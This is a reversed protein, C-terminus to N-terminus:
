SIFRRDRGRGNKQLSVFTQLSSTPNFHTDQSCQPGSFLRTLVFNSLFLASSAKYKAALFIRDTSYITWFPLHLICRPSPASKKSFFNDSFYIEQFNICNIPSKDAINDICNNTNEITSNEMSYNAKLDICSFITDFENISLICIILNDIILNYIPEIGNL